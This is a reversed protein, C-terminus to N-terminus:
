NSIKTLKRELSYQISCCVQSLENIDQSTNDTIFQQIKFPEGKNVLDFWASM